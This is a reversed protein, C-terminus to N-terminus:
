ALKGGTAVWENFKIINVFISAGVKQTIVGDRWIGRSRKANVANVTMGSIESFKKIPLWEIKEAAEELKNM